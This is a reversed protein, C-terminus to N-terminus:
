EDTEQTTEKQTESKKKANDSIARFFGSETLSTSFSELVESLDGGGLVHEQIENGAWSEDHGSCLALYARSSAFVTSGINSISIGMKDFECVANFDLERALYTKGNVTFKNVKKKAM